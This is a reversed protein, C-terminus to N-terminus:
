TQQEQAKLLRERVLLLTSQLNTLTDNVSENKTELPFSIPVRPHYGYNLYFPSEGSSVNVSDNISFEVYPLLEDWNNHNANVYARLTSILTRNM